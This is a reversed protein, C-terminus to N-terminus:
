AHLDQTARASREPTGTRRKAHLENRQKRTMHRPHLNRSAVFAAPDSGDYTDTQTIEAGAKRCPRYRNRGDIIRNQYLTIPELLGNKKIDAALEALEDETMLPFFEALPHFELETLTPPKETTLREMM